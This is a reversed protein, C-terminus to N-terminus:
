ISELSDWEIETESPPESKAKILAVEDDTLGDPARTVEAPFMACILQANPVARFGECRSPDLERIIQPAVLRTWHKPIEFKGLCFAAAADNMCTDSGPLEYSDIGHFLHIVIFPVHRAVGHTEKDYFFAELWDALNNNTACLAALKRIAKNRERKKRKEELKNSGDDTGASVSGTKEIPPIGWRYEM